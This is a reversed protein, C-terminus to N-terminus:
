VTVHKPTSLSAKQSATTAARKRPMSRITGTPFAMSIPTNQSPCSRTRSSELITFAFQHGINRNDSRYIIGDIDNLFEMMPQHFVKFRNGIIKLNDHHVVSAGISASFFYRLYSCLIGTYFEHFQCTIETLMYGYGSSKVVRFTFIHYDHITIQLIGRM